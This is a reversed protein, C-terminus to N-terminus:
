LDQFTRSGLTSHYLRGHAKHVLGPARPVYNELSLSRRPGTAQELSLSVCSRTIPLLSVRFGFGSVRSGIGYVLRLPAFRLLEFVLLLSTLGAVMQNL